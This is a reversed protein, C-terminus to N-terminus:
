RKRTSSAATRKRAPRTSAKPPTTEDPTKEDPAKVEPAEVRLQAGESVKQAAQPTNWGPLGPWSAAGGPWAALMMTWWSHTASLAAEWSRAQLAIAQEATWPSRWLRPDDIAPPDGPAPAWLSNWHWMM